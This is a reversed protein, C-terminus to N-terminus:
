ETKERWSVDEAEKKAGSKEMKVLYVGWSFYLAGFAVILAGLINMLVNGILFPFVYLVLAVVLHFVTKEGIESDLGSWQKMRRNEVIGAIGSILFFTAVVYVMAKMVSASNKSFAVLSIIFCVAGALVSIAANIFMTKRVRSRADLNIEVGHVMVKSAVSDFRLTNILTRIGRILLVSSFVLAAGNVVFAPNVIVFVGFAVALIGLVFYYISNKM